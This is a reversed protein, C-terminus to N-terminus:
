ERECVVYLMATQDDDMDMRALQFLQQLILSENGSSEAELLEEIEFDYVRGFAGDSGILFMDGEQLDGIFYSYIDEDDLASHEGLSNMLYHTNAYYEGSYREYKGSKVEEEAKTQLRSILKLTGSRARYFYVPSDGVNAIVAYNDVICVISLTSGTVKYNEAKSCVEENACQISQRVAKEMREAFYAMSFGDAGAHMYQELMRKYFAQLFGTVANRSAKEGDDLGGMGDALVLLSMKKDDMFAYRSFMYHDENVKHDAEGSKETRTYIRYGSM